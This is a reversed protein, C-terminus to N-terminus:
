LFPLFFVKRGDSLEERLRSFAKAMHNRVTNVSISLEEAIAENSLGDRKSMLFVERCTAPLRDIARWIRADRESTDISEEEVDGVAELTVRTMNDRQRVHDIAGNRVSRYMFAKFNDPNEGAEIRQWARMFAEQVVDAATDTDDVIRLAYMCLPLHLRKFQREFDSVTM